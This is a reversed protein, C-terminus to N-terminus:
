TVIMKEEMDQSRKLRRKPIYRSKNSRYKSRSGKGGRAKLRGDIGCLKNIVDTPLRDPAYDYLRTFNRFRDGNGVHLAEQKYKGMWRATYGQEKMYHYMILRFGRVIDSDNSREICLYYFATLLQRSQATTLASTVERKGHVLDTLYKNMAKPKYWIGDVKVRTRETIGKGDELAPCVSNQIQKNEKKLTSRIFDSLARTPSEVVHYLFPDNPYKLNEEAPATTEVWCSGIKPYTGDKLHRKAVHQVLPKIHELKEIPEHLVNDVMHDWTIPVKWDKPLFAFNWNDGGRRLGYLGDNETYMNEECAIQSVIRDLREVGLCRQANVSKDELLVTGGAKHVLACVQALDEPDFVIVEMVIGHEEDVFQPVGFSCRPVVHDALIKAVCENNPCRMAFLTVPGTVRTGARIINCRRVTNSVGGISKRQWEGYNAPFDPLDVVNLGFFPKDQELVIGDHLKTFHTFTLSDEIWVSKEPDNVVGFFDEEGEWESPIRVVTLPLGGNFKGLVRTHPM